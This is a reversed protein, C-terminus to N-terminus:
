MHVGDLPKAVAPLQGEEADALASVTPEAVVVHEVEQTARLLQLYRGGNSAPEPAWAPAARRGGPPRAVVAPTGIERRDDCTRQHSEPM